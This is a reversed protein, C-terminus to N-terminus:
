MVRSHSARPKLGLIGHDGARRATSQDWSSFLFPNCRPCLLPMTPLGLDTQILCTPGLSM